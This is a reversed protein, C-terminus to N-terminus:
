RAYGAWFTGDPLETLGDVAAPAIGSMLTLAERAAAEDAPGYGAPIGERYGSKLAEFVADDEAMMQPRIRDWVADDSRMLDKAAYSADLLGRALEPNEEAWEERFTWGLLPPPRDLGLEPLIRAVAVVETFGQAKLRANYQWFNLVADLDGQRALENLLPPAAFEVEAEEALDMGAKRAFAQVLVWSKDNPGGAIGIRRGKLDSVSGIAKAPDAMMAGVSLSWPVFTYDYGNARQRAVWIWDTVIVDVEGAQFAIAAADKDALVVPTLVFGHKRDLGGRIVEIEWNVTGFELTGARIEPLDQARAAAGAATMALILLVLSRLVTRM